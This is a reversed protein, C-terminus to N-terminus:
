LGMLERVWGAWETAAPPSRRVRDALRRAQQHGGGVVALQRATRPSGHQAKLGFFHGFQQGPEGWVVHHEPSIRQAHAVGPLDLLTTEEVDGAILAATGEHDVRLDLGRERVASALDVAEEGVAEQDHDSVVMLVTEQWQPSLWEILESLAADTARLQELAEPAAPGYLHRATDVEDFQLVILEATEIELTALGDLVARDAGYNFKGRPADEPLVGEPPWHADAREAGCVGVLNQDGFAAVARRGARRCDDFLTATRPGVDKAPVFRGDVEVSNTLIGHSYPDDGTVFTAHNPYTSAVLVGHGGGEAYGGAGRLRDLTPTLSESIGDHPFADLIALVVRPPPSM